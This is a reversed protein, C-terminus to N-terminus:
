DEFGDIRGHVYDAWADLEEHMRAKLDPLPVADYCYMEGGHEMIERRRTAIEKEHLRTLARAVTSRDRDLEDALGAASVEGHDRLALYTDVDREHLGFVCRLVDGFDPEEVLMLTRLTPGDQM